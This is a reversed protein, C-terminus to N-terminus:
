GREWDDETLSTPFLSFEGPFGGRTVRIARVPRPVLSPSTQLFFVSRPPHRIVSPPHRIASPSFDYIFLYIYLIFIHSVIVFLNSSYILFISNLISFFIFILQSMEPDDSLLYQDSHSTIYNARIDSGVRPQSTFIHLKQLKLKHFEKATHFTRARHRLSHVLSAM